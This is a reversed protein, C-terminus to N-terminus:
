ADHEFPVGARVIRDGLVDDQIEGPLYPSSKAPLMDISYAPESTGCSDISLRMHRTRARRRLPRSARSTETRRSSARTRRRACRCATRASRRRRPHRLVLALDHEVDVRHREDDRPRMLEAVDHGTSSTAPLAILWACIPEHAFPRKSSMSIAARMSLPRLTAFPTRKRSKARTAAPTDATRALAPSTSVSSSAPACTIVGPQPM